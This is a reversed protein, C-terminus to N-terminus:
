RSPAGSIGQTGGAAQLGLPGLRQSAGGLGGVELAVWHEGSGVKLVQGSLQTRTTTPGCLHLILYRPVDSSSPSLLARREMAAVGCSRQRVQAEGPVKELKLFLSSFFFGSMEEAQLIGSLRGCVECSGENIKWHGESNPQYPVWKASTSM